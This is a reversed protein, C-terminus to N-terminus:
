KKLFREITEITRKVAGDNDSIVKEANRSIEQRRSPDDV